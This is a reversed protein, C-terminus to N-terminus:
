ETNSKVSIKLAEQRENHLAKKSLSNIMYLVNIARVASKFTPYVAKIVHSCFVMVGIQASKLKKIVDFM